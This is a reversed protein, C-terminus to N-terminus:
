ELTPPRIRSRLGDLLGPMFQTVYARGNAALERDGRASGRLWRLLSRALHVAARAAIFVDGRRLYKGFFAAHTRAYGRYQDLRQGSERWGLHTVRAAPEYAITVGNRLARYAWEGDEAFRTCPDEDFLGVRRLVDLPLGCNGGSLRDYTLRPRKAVSPRTDRVTNLVPGTGGSLVAGTVARDPHERLCGAMVRLWDCDVECDDDTILVFPTRLAHLGRNLAAARGTGNMRLHRTVVGERSLTALWDDITDTNGQDVIILQGPLTSGRRISELCHQLIDRGLTPIVVTVDAAASSAQTQGDSQSSGSMTSPARLRM